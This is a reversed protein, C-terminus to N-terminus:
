WRIPGDDSGSEPAPLVEKRSDEEANNGAPERSPTFEWLKKYGPSEAPSNTQFGHLQSNDESSEVSAKEWLIPGSVIRQRPPSSARDGEAASAPAPVDEPVDELSELALMVRQMAWDQVRRVIIGTSVVVRVAILASAGSVLWFPLGIDTFDVTAPDLTWVVTFRELLVLILTLFLPGLPWFLSWLLTQNLFSNVVRSCAIVTPRRLKDLKALRQDLVAFILQDAKQRHLVTPKEKSKKEGISPGQYLAIMRTPTAWWAILGLIAMAVVYVVSTLVQDPFVIWGASVEGMILVLVVILVAWVAIILAKVSQRDM